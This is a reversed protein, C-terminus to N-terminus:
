DNLLKIDYYGFDKQHIIEDVPFDFFLNSAEIQSIIDYADHGQDDVMVSSVVDDEEHFVLRMRLQESSFVEIVESGLISTRRIIHCFQYDSTIILKEMITNIFISVNYDSRM